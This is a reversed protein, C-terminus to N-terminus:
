LGARIDPEFFSWRVDPFAQKFAREVTNIQLALSRASQEERMEAQVSVLMDNGLQLTILSIVNGIEPRDDLFRRMQEQIVPDVSQGILMAKVEIAVFVAVVILLVGIVLTGLADWLPNGTWATLCVAVLAVSLGMMAAMDEGVIVVLEAKRSERFWRYLGRGRRERAAEQLAARTSVGEAMLSFVLVGVAWWWQKLPEPNHLKHWGEYLSFMGGVTFLMVAVLFSWFYIARGQGLPYEPSAPERAQRMGILLLVQNGCDALSHVTEALMASSGTFWAAMGKAGAISLNAGLAYLIARTSEGKGAM